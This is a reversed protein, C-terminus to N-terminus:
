QLLADRGGVLTRDGRHLGNVHRGVVQGVRRRCGGKGVQIRRGNQRTRNSFLANVRGNIREVGRRTHKVGADDPLFVVLGSTADLFGELAVLRQLVDDGNQAHVFQRFLVLQDHAAGTLDLAEQRLREENGFDEGTRGSLEHG